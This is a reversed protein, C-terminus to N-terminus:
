VPSRIFFYPVLAAAAHQRLWCACGCIHIHTIKKVGRQFTTEIVYGEELGTYDPGTESLLRPKHRPYAPLRHLHWYHWGRRNYHWSCFSHQEVGDHLVDWLGNGIRDCYAADYRGVGVPAGHM